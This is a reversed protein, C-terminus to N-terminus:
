YMGTCVPIFHYTSTTTHVPIYMYMSTRVPIYMYTCTHLVKLPAVELVVRRALVVGVLGAALQRARARGAREVRSRRYISMRIGTPERWSLAAEAAQVPLM